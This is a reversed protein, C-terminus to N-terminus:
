FACPSALSEGHAKEHCVAFGLAAAGEYRGDYVSFFIIAKGHAFFFFVRCVIVEGHALYFACPSAQSRRTGSFFVRHVMVEGHALFLVRRLIAEGHAQYFACPSSDPV